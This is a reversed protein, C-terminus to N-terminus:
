KPEYCDCDKCFDENSMMRYILSWCGMEGELARPYTCWDPQRYRKQIDCWTMGSEKMGEWEEDSISNHFYPKM